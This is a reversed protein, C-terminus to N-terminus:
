YGPKIPVKDPSNDITGNIKNIKNLDRLEDEKLRLALAIQKQVIDYPQKVWQDFSCNFYKGISHVAFSEMLENWKGNNAAAEAPHMEILSFPHNKDIAPTYIGNDIDYARRLSIKASLNTM